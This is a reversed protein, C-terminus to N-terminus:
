VFSGPSRTMKGNVDTTLSMPVVFDPFVTRVFSTLIGIWIHKFQASSPVVQGSPLGSLQRLLLAV